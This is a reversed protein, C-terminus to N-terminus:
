AVYCENETEAAQGLASLTQLIDRVKGRRAHKFRAAVEEVSLPTESATLEQLIAQTREALELPGWDIKEAPAGDGGAEVNVDIEMEAQMEEPAQYSPRLYRVRGQKEEARRKKNLDVLKYLIEDESLDAPWGYAAAVARDLDYHLERLVGVLGQEHVRREDEGLPEGAREKELM